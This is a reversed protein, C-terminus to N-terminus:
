GKVKERENKLAEQIKEVEFKSINSSANLPKFTADGSTEKVKAGAGRKKKMEWRINIEDVKHPADADPDSTTFTVELPEYLHSNEQVISALLRLNAEFPMMQTNVDRTGVVLNTGDTAGGLSAARVHLWEWRTGATPVNALVAYAMANAGGMNSAQGDGRDAAAPPTAWKGTQPRKLKKMTSELSKMAKKADGVNQLHAPLTPYSAPEAVTLDKKYVEVEDSLESGGITIDEFWREDQTFGKRATDQAQIDHARGKASFGKESLSYEANLDLKIDTLSRVADKIRRYLTMMPNKGAKTRSRTNKKGSGNMLADNYKKQIGATARDLTDKYTQTKNWIAELSSLILKDEDNQDDLNAAVKNLHLQIGDILNIWDTSNADIVQKLGQLFSYDANSATNPTQSFRAKINPKQIGNRKVKKPADKKAKGPPPTYTKGRQIVSKMMQIAAQNGYAKQLQLIKTSSLQSPTKQSTTSQPSATQSKTPKSYQTELIPGGEWM